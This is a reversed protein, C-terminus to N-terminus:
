PTNAGLLYGKVNVDFPEDCARALTDEPIDALPIARDFVGANGVFIDLRGFADVTAAVARKNDALRVVDGGIAVLSKGFKAQLTDIRAPVRDLVGLRAGEGIFRAVIAHGIGSGGGTVLAVQGDLWGM